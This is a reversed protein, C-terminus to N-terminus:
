AKVTPVNIKILPFNPSIKPNFNINTMPQIQIVINEIIVPM